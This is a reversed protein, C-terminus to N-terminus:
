NSRARQPERRAFVLKDVKWEDSVTKPPPSKGSAKDAEVNSLRITRLKWTKAFAECNFLIAHIVERTLPLPKGGREFKISVEYDVAREKSKQRAQEDSIQIDTDKLEGGRVSGTIRNEFYLLHGGVSANRNMNTKIEEIQKELLGIKELQGNPRIAKQQAQKAEDLWTDELYAWAGAGPIAVISILIILKYLDM